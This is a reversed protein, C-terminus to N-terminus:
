GWPIRSLCDPVVNLRGRIHKIILNKDQFFLSWRTLRANKNRFRNVFTLPNHDTLVEISGCNSSLYIEFHQYALVLSLTEKEITSYKCQASNLKKSFFAVPSDDKGVTQFLVAGVGYDSADTALKFPKGFDPSKLIPYSTIAAKIKDFAFQCPEDWIFKNRKKLLSTLPYTIEAYNQMFRRYYGALGLFSLCDHKTVSNVKRYDFCLRSQGNEKKVLAVPSSWPSTSPTILNCNLMYDIEKRVLRSKDPNLRYPSQKIPSSDGVDVDHTVLSTRGPTDKCIDPHHLILDQLQPRHRLSLHNLVTDLNALIEANDLPWENKLSLVEQPRTTLMVPTPQRRHFLKLMNIHCVAQKKRRDPTDLIYNLENKKGIIKYPGVYKAKLQGQIPLLVMVEDGIDFSRSVTKKDYAIKMSQQTKSLHQKAFELAQTLHTRTRSIYELFDESTDEEEWSERLMELPGRVKHGFIINFPSLGVSENVSSRVAFLLYPVLEDWVSINDLCYKKLMSKLTQHFREVSGQSEPHYPTSTSHNIGLRKMNDRFVKSTFNSGNDTQIVKPLGFHTFFRTLERVVIKSSFNRIPIAEPYRSVRDIMTLIYVHGSKSKPLPGVVDVVIEAFPEGLAAIPRLPAKPIVQNPKGTRQCVACTKVYRTVDKKMSPWFFSKSVRDLTKKIGLHGSLLNDHAESLVRERFAYPLVIQDVYNGVLAQDDVGRRRRYWIGNNKFFRPTTLDSPEVDNNNDDSTITRLTPDSKQGDILSSRDWKEIIKDRSNDSSQRAVNKVRFADSLDGDDFADKVLSRKSRTVVAVERTEPHRGIIPIEYQQGQGLENGIICQVGQVPLSDVVALPRIGKTDRFSVWFNELPTSVTADPFGGLLVFKSNQRQFNPPLVESLILSQACGTDRLAKLKLKESGASPSSVLIDSIYSEFLPDPNSGPDLTNILSVSKKQTKKPCERAIHGKGKCNYCTIDKKRSPSSSPSSKQKDGSPKSGSRKSFLSRTFKTRDTLKHALTYEDALAAAESFTQVKCEELYLRLDKSVMEKFDEILMLEKMKDMTDVEMAKLWKDLFEKKKQAFEVFSQGEKKTLDRFRQRYAEPVLEYVKLIANKLTNFDQAQEPTLGNFVKRAKGTLRCHILSAWHEKPWKLRNAAIEFSVFFENVETEVFTPVLPLVKAPNFKKWPSDNDEKKLQAMRWEHEREREREEKEREREEKKQEELWREHQRQRDREEVELKMLQVQAAANDIFQESERVDDECKQKHTDGRERESEDEHMGGVAGEEEEEEEDDMDQSFSRTLIAASALQILTSKRDAPGFDQGIERLVLQLEKKSLNILKNVAGEEALFAQVEEQTEM